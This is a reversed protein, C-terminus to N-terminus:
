LEGFKLIAYMVAVVGGFGLAAFAYHVWVLYNCRERIILRISVWTIWVGSIAILLYQAAAGIRPGPPSLGVWLLYASVPYLLMLGWTPAKPDRSAQEGVARQHAEWQQRSIGARRCSEAIVAYYPDDVPWENDM